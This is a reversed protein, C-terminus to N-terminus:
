SFSKPKDFRALIPCKSKFTALYALDSGVITDATSICRRGEQDQSHPRAAGGSVGNISLQNVQITLKHSTGAVTTCTSVMLGANLIAIDIRPLSACQETFKRISDYSEMDLIWILIKSHPFEKRLQSAAADGKAQSHVAM